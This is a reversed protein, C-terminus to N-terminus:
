SVLKPQQAPRTLRQLIEQRPGFMEVVGERLMLIKDVHQMVNPRHSSIVLTCGAQRLNDIAKSLAQEGEADLNANPEDLVVFKPEGYLARALGIRQRQGGSLAVGHPGIPTDYGEPLRLIMEHVGAMQAAKAVADADVEDAFRAINAAVTGDLVEVEQPLYGIHPGLRISDWRFIDAGDLRVAGGQVPWVGILARALTSKGAASPGILGMAEGPQLEFSVGKLVVRDSGPPAVVAREVVLHGKPAPLEMREPPAPTEALLQDLRGWAARAGVFQRWSGIAQEIPALGRGMIISAAIMVGPTIIQQIALWAGTGLIASQVGLRVFKTLGSITGARDSAIAQRELVQQNLAAWRGRIGPLMGM